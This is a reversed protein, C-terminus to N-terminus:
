QVLERLAKIEAAWSPRQYNPVRDSALMLAEVVAPTMDDLKQILKKAREKILAEASAKRASDEEDLKIRLRLSENNKVCEELQEQLMDRMAGSPKVRGEDPHM